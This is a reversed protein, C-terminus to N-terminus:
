LLDCVNLCWVILATKLVCQVCSLTQHKSVTCHCGFTALLVVEALQVYSMSHSVEVKLLVDELALVTFNLMQAKPVSSNTFATPMNVPQRCPMTEVPTLRVRAANCTEDNCRHKTLLCYISQTCITLCLALLSYNLMASHTLCRMNYHSATSSSSYRLICRLVVAVTRLRPACSIVCLYPTCYAFHHHVIISYYHYLVTGAQHSTYLLGSMSM